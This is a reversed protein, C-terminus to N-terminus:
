PKGKKPQSIPHLELDLAAAIKAATELRLDREGSVFRDIIGPDIGANKAIRYHTQGSDRITQKLQDAITRSKAAASPRNKSM